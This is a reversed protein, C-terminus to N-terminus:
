QEVDNVHNYPEGAKVSRGDIVRDDTSISWVDLTSDKDINGVALMVIRCDKPCDGKLGVQDLLEVPIGAKLLGNDPKPSRAEDALVGTHKGGVPTRPVRADGHLAFFVRYRNNPEPDFGVDEIFESYRDREAMLARQAVYASKLLVKSEVQTSRTKYGVFNPIAIAAVTGLCCVLGFAGFVLVVVLSLSSAKKGDPPPPALPTM